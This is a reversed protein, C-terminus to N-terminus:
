DTKPAAAPAAPRPPTAEVEIRIDIEDAIVPTTTGPINGGYNVGYDRRNIKTEATFGM